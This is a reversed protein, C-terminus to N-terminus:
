AAEAARPVCYDELASGDIDPEILSCYIRLERGCHICSAVASDESARWAGPNHGRLRASFDAIRQLSALQDTMSNM